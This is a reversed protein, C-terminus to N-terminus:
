AAHVNALVASQSTSAQGAHMRVADTLQEVNQTFRETPVAVAYVGVINGRVLIPAAVCSVGPIFAGLDHAYGQERVKALEAELEVLASSQAPESLSTAAGLYAQRLEPTAHALLVKGAARVHARDYPGVMAWSVRLANESEVMALLRITTGSWATLYATEGTAAKLRHLPELLQEPVALRMQQDYSLALLGVGAGLGYRREADRTLLGEAVLTNLLHYVTSLRLGSADAAEKATCGKRQEALWLLLRSARAVSQIQTKSTSSDEAKM